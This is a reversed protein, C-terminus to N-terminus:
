HCKAFFHGSDDLFGVPITDRIRMSLLCMKNVVIFYIFSVWRKDAKGANILGKGEM